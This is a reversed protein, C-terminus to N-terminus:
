LNGSFFCGCRRRHVPRRSEKDHLLAMQTIGLRNKLVNSGPYCYFDDHAYEYAYRDIVPLQGEMGTFFFWSM